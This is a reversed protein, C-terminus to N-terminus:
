DMRGKRGRLKGSSKGYVRKDKFQMRWFGKDSRNIDFDVDTM